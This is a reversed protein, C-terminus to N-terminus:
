NCTYTSGLTRTKKKIITAHVHIHVISLEAPFGLTGKGGRYSGRILVPNVCKKKWGEDM